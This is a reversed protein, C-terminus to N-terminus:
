IVIPETEVAAVSTALALDQAADNGPDARLMSVLDGFRKVFTSNAEVSAKRPADFALQMTRGPAALPPTTYIRQM